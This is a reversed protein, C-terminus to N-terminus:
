VPRAPDTVKLHQAPLMLLPAAAWHPDSDTHGMMPVPCDPMPSWETLYRGKGRGTNAQGCFHAAHFITGDDGVAILMGRKGSIRSTAIATVHECPGQVAMWADPSFPESIRWIRGTGDLVFIEVHERDLASCAIDTIARKFPVPVDRVFAETVSDWRVCAIFGDCAAVLIPGRLVECSAILTARGRRFPRFRWGLPRAPPAWPGRQAAGM